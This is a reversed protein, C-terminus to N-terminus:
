LRGSLVFYMRVATTLPIHLHMEQIRSVHTAKFIPIGCLLKVLLAEERLTMIEPINEYVDPFDFTLNPLDVLQTNDSGITGTPLLATGGADYCVSYAPVNDVEFWVRVANDTSSNLAVIEVFDSRSLVAPGGYSGNNVTWFPLRLSRDITQTPLEVLAFNIQTTENALPLHTYQTNFLHLNSEDFIPWAPRDEGKVFVGTEADFSFYDCQMRKNAIDVNADWYARSFNVVAGTEPNVIVPAEQATARLCITFALSVLGICFLNKL